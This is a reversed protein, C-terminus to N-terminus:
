CDYWDLYVSGGTKTQEGGGYVCAYGQCTVEYISTRNVRSTYGDARVFATDDWACVM